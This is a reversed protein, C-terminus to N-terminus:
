NSRCLMLPFSIPVRMWQAAKSQEPAMYGLSGMIQGTRTEQALAIHAIGFDVIKIGGDKAVMINAPKIDRHVFGRGHAHSLGHCVGIILRTKELPSLQRRSSIIADLSEGEVFEMVGYPNEEREGLEYVIVINPHQLGATSQAERRDPNDSFGGTMMKIAVVRNLFPDIAKYVIGMGGRGIVDIVDYKGIKTLKNSAM